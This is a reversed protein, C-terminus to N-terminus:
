IYTVRPPFNTEHYILLNFLTGETEEFERVGNNAAALAEEEAIM